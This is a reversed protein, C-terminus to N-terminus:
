EQTKLLLNLQEGLGRVAGDAHGREMEFGAAGDGDPAPFLEGHGTDDLHGDGDLKHFKDVFTFEREVFHDRKGGAIKVGAGTVQSLKEEMGAEGDGEFVQHLDHEDDAVVGGGIEAEAFGSAGGGDGGAHLFHAEFNANVAVDGEENGIPDADVDLLEGRFRFPIFVHPFAQFVGDGIFFVQLRAPSRNGVGAICGGGVVHGLEDGVDPLFVGEFGGAGVDQDADELAADGAFGADFAHEGGAGFDGMFGAGEATDDVIGANDCEGIARTM